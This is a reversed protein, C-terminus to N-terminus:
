SPPLVASWSRRPYGRGCCDLRHRKRRSKQAKAAEPPRAATPPRRRTRPAGQPVPVRSALLEPQEEAARRARGAPGRLQRSAGSGGGLERPGSPLPAPSLHPPLLTPTPPGHPSPCSIPAGPTRPHFFPLCGAGGGPLCCVICCVLWGRESSATLRPRRRRHQGHSWSCLSSLALLGGAQPRAMSQLFKWVKACAAASRGVDNQPLAHLGQM